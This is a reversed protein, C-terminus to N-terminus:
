IDVPFSVPSNLSFSGPTQAWAYGLLGLGAAFAVALTLARRRRRRAIRTRFSGKPRHSIDL